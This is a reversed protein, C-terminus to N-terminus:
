EPPFPNKAKHELYADHMGLKDVSRLIAACGQCCVPREGGDFLVYITRSPFSKDGCHYCRIRKFSWGQRDLAVQISYFLKQFM